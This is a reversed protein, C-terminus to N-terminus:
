SGPSIPGCKGPDTPAGCLKQSPDAGSPMVLLFVTTTTCLGWTDCVQYNFSDFGQYGGLAYYSFSAYQMNCTVNGHAAPGCGMFNVGDNDPDTDNTFMGSGNFPTGRVVYFD